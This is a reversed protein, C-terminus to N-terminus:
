RMLLTDRRAEDSDLLEGCSQKVELNETEICPQKDLGSWIWILSSKLDERRKCSHYPRMGIVVAIDPRSQTGALTRSRETELQVAKM